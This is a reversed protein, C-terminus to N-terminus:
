APTENKKFESSPVEPPLTSSAAPALDMPAAKDAPLDVIM